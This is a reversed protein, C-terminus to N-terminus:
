TTRERINFLLTWKNKEDKSWGEAYIDNPFDQDLQAFTIPFGVDGPKAVPSNLFSTVVITIYLRDARKYFLKYIEAGGAIIVEGADQAEREAIELAEDPDGVTFYDPPDPVLPERTLVINPRKPLPKGGFSDFTKRGVILPKGRTNDRFWKMDRSLKGHGWPLDGDRGILGNVDMAVIMAIRQM